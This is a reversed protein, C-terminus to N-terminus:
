SQYMETPAVTTDRWEILCRFVGQWADYMETEGAYSNFTRRDDLSKPLDDPLKRPSQPSQPDGDSSDRGDSPRHDSLDM